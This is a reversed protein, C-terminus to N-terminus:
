LIEGQGEKRFLPIPNEWKGFPYLPFINNTFIITSNLQTSNLQTSNLQLFYAMKFGEKFFVPILFKEKRM